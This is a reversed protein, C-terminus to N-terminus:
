TLQGFKLGKGFNGQKEYQVLEPDGDKGKMELTYENETTAANGNMETCKFIPKGNADNQGIYEFTYKHSNETITFSKPIGDETKGSSFEVKGQIPFTKGSADRCVMDEQDYLSKYKDSADDKKKAGEVNDKKKDVTNDVVSGDNSHEKVSNDDDKKEQVEQQQTKQAQQPQPTGGGEETKESKKKGFLSLIGGVITAGGAIPIIWNKFFKEFWGGSNEQQQCMGPQIYGYNRNAAFVSGGYFNNQIYTNNGGTYRMTTLQGVRRPQFGGSNNNVYSVM